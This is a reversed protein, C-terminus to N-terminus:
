RLGEKHACRGCLGGVLYTRANPQYTFLHILTGVRVYSRCRDCSRDERSGQDGTRGIPAVVVEASAYLRLATIERVREAAVGRLWASPENVVQPASM